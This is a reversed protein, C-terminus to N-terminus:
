GFAQWAAIKLSVCIFLACLCIKQGLVNEISSRYGIHRNSPMSFLPLECVFLEFVQFFMPVPPLRNSAIRLKSVSDVFLRQASLAANNVFRVLGNCVNKM